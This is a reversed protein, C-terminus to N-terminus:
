QLSYQIIDRIGDSQGIKPLM